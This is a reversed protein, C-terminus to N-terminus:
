KQLKLKKCKNEILEEQLQDIMKDIKSMPIFDKEFGFLNWADEGASECLHYIGEIIGQYEDLEYDYEIKNRDAYEKTISYSYYKKIMYLNIINFKKSEIYYDKKEDFLEFNITKELEMIQTRTIIPTDIELIKWLYLGEPIYEHYVCNVRDFPDCMTDYDTYDINLKEAQQKTIDYDYFQNILGVLVLKSYKYKKFYDDM